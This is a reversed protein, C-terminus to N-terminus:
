DGCPDTHWQPRPFRPGSHMRRYGLIPHRRMGFRSSIAGPVPAILGERQEGVGSAEFFRGENGWRLLQTRVRGNRILAAYLLQGVEVEGTAARKYAVILDYEDAASIDSDLDIESASLGCINSCQMPRACRRRPRFSVPQRGGRGRIRLPTADVQIPRPDLALTGGRREVALQLDFRARFSLRMSRVRSVPPM